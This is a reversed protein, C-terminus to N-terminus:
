IIKKLINKIKKNLLRNTGIASLWTFPWWEPYKKEFKSTTYGVLFGTTTGTAISFSIQKFATKLSAEQEEENSKELTIKTDLGNNNSFEITSNLSVMPLHTIFLAAMLNIKLFLFIKMIKM